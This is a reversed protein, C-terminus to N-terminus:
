LKNFYTVSLRARTLHMMSYIDRQYFHLSCM